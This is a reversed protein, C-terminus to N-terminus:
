VIVLLQIIDADMNRTMWRAQMTEDGDYVNYFSNNARISLQKTSSGSVSDEVNVINESSVSDLNDELKLEIFNGYDSGTLSSLIDSDVDVQGSSTDTM